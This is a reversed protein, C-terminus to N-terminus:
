LACWLLYSFHMAIFAYWMNSITVFISFQRRHSAQEDCWLADFKDHKSYSFIHLLYMHCCASCHFLTNTECWSLSLSNYCMHVLERCLFQVNLSVFSSHTAYAFKILELLFGFKVTIDICCTYRLIHLICKTLDSCTLATWKRRIRIFSNKEFQTYAKNTSQTLVCQISCSTSFRTFVFPLFFDVRSFLSFISPFKRWGRISKRCLELLYTNLIFRFFINKRRFSKCRKSLVSIGTSFLCKVVRDAKPKRNSIATKTALARFINERIYWVVNTQM